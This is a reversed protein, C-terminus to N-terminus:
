LPRALSLSQLTPGVRRRTKDQAPGLARPFFTKAPSFHTIQGLRHKRM